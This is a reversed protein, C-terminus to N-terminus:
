TMQQFLMHIHAMAAGLPNPSIVPVGKVLSGWLTQLNIMLAMQGRGEELTQLSIAPAEQVRGQRLAQLLIHFVGSTYTRQINYTRCTPQVAHRFFKTLLSNLAPLCM